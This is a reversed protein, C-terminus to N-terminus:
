RSHPSPVRALPETFHSEDAVPPIANVEPEAYCGFHHPESEIGTRRQLDRSLDRFARAARNSIRDGLLGANLDM